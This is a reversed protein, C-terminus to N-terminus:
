NCSAELTIREDKIRSLQSIDARTKEKNSRKLLCLKQEFYTM